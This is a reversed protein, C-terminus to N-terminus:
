SDAGTSGARHTLFYAGAAAAFVILCAVPSEFFIWLLAAVLIAVLVIWVWSPPKLWLAAFDIM